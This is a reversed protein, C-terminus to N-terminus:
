NAENEMKIVFRLSQELEAGAHETQMSTQVGAQEPLAEDSRLIHLLSM